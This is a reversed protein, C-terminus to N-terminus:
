EAPAPFDEEILEYIELVNQGAFIDPNKPRSHAKRFAESETWKQFSERDKWYGRIIYFNSEVPRLFEFRIFGDIEEVLRPREAVYKEFEKEQGKKVPIRNDVILMREDGEEM